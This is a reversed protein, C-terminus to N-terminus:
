QFEKNLRLWRDNPVKAICPKHAWVNTGMELIETNSAGGDGDSHGPHVSCHHMVSHAKESNGAKKGEIDIETNLGECYIDLSEKSQYGIYAFCSYFVIVSLIIALWKRTIRIKM